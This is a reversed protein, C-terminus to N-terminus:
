KYQCLDSNLTLHEINLVLNSVSVEEKYDPLIVKVHPPAMDKARLNGNQTIDQSSNGM